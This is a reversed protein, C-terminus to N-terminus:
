RCRVCLAFRVTAISRNASNNFFASLVLGVRFFVFTGYPATWRLNSSFFRRPVKFFSLVSFNKSYDIDDTSSNSRYAYGNSGLRLYSDGGFEIASGTCSFLATHFIAVILILVKGLSLAENEVAGTVWSTEDDYMLGTKGPIFNVM